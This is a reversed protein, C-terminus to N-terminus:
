PQAILSRTLNLCDYWLRLREVDELAIVAKWVPSGETLMRPEAPTPTLACALLPWRDIRYSKGTKTRAVYQPASDSSAGLAGEAILKDLMKRYRHNRDLTAVAWKGLDDDEMHTIRGIVPDSKMSGDMAHDWTLPKDGPLKDLWFDTARTFYDREVDTKNADGWLVAYFKIEDTGISKVAVVESAIGLGIAKVYSMDLAKGADCAIATMAENESPEEPEGNEEVLAVIEKALERMKRLRAADAANNRMGVKIAGAVSVPDLDVGSDAVAKLASRYDDDSMGASKGMLSTHCIAIAAPRDKGTAMVKDVCRDMKDWLDEPMNAYPM